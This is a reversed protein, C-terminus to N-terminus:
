LKTDQSESTEEGQTAGASHGKEKTTFKIIREKHIEGQGNTAETKVSRAHEVCVRSTEETKGRHCSLQSQPQTTDEVTAENHTRQRPTGQTKKHRRKMNEQEKHESKQTEKQQQKREEVNRREEKLPEPM